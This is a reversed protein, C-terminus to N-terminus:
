VNQCVAHASLKLNEKDFKDGNSGHLRKVWQSVMEKTCEGWNTLMKLEKKDNEQLICFITDMGKQVLMMMMWTVWMTLGISTKNGGLLELRQAEPLGKKLNEHQRQKEKFSAPRFCLVDEPEDQRKDELNSGGTWPVGEIMGGVRPKSMTPQKAQDETPEKEQDETTEGGKPNGREIVPSFPVEM